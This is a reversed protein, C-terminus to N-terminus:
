IKANWDLIHYQGTSRSYTVINWKRLAKVKNWYRQKLFVYEAPYMELLKKRIEKSTAHGGLTKLVNYVILQSM